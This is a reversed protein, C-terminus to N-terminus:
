NSTNVFSIWDYFDNEDIISWSHPNKIGNKFGKNKTKTYRVTKKTVLDLHEKFKEIKFANLDEYNNYGLVDQFWILDPESYFHIHYDKLYKLNSKEIDAKIFPSHEYYANMAESPVGINESLYQVIFKAEDVAIKPSDTKHLVKIQSRYLGLLDVPSDGVFIGKPKNKTIGLKNLWICYSLAVNGGVSFGGIFINTEPINNKLLIRDILVNLVEFDSRNLFFDYKYDIFLAAMGQDYCTEDIYTEVDTTVVDAGYSPFLIVLGKPSKPVKLIYALEHEIKANNQRPKQKSCSSILLCLFVGLRYNM